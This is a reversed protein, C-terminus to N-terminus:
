TKIMVFQFQKKLNQHLLYINKWFETFCWFGQVGFLYDYYVLRANYYTSEAKCQEIGQTLVPRWIKKVFKLLSLMHPFFNLVSLSWCLLNGGFMYSRCIGNPVWQWQLIISPPTCIHWFHLSNVTLEAIEPLCTKWLWTDTPLHNHASDTELAKFQKATCQDHCPAMMVTSVAYHMCAYPYDFHLIYM